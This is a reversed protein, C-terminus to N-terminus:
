HPQLKGHSLHVARLLKQSGPAIPIRKAATVGLARLRGASVHPLVSTVNDSMLQLRNGIIETIVQQMGK